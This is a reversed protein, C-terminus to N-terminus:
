SENILESFINLEKGFVVFSMWVFVIVFFNICKWGDM